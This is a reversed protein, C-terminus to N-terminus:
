FTYKVGAFYNRKAAPDYTTIKTQATYTLNNFYEEDFLNNVGLYLKFNTNLKYNGTINSVIRENVLGSANAADLYYKDRYTTNSLLDFKDNIQYKIDLSASVKSVNPIKKDKYIGETVKADVYNLSESITWKGLYHELNLEVGKRSTADINEYKWAMNTHNTSIWKILIENDTNTQYIAGKISTNGIFDEFGVEYTRFSEGKVDNVSYTYLAGVLDKKDIYATPNPLTYGKEYKSYVKGSDSYIYNLGLSFANESSEKELDYQLKNNITNKVKYDATEQRYGANIQFKSIDIRNHIYASTSTKNMEVVQKRSIANRIADTSSYDYGVVLNGFNYNYNLKPNIFLKEDKHSGTIGDKDTGGDLVRDTFYSNLVFNLKDNIRNDYQISYEKREVQNRGVIEKKLESAGYRDKELETKTLNKPVYVDDSYEGYKMSIKQKDSIKYKMSLGINERKSDSYKRFGDTEINNYNVGLEMNNTPKIALNVGYNLLGESGTELGFSGTIKSAGFNNKTIINIVGGATGSGYVVAGGGPVIEIREINEIAISNLPLYGHASDLGNLGVGDVLVQVKTLARDGQGRLDVVPSNMGGKYINVLATGRLVEEVSKYNKEKIEESTIVTVSATVNKRDEAFGTTSVVTDELRLGMGEYFEDGYTMSTVILALILFRKKM